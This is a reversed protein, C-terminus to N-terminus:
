GSICNFRIDSRKEQVAKVRNAVREHVPSDPFARSFAELETLAPGEPGCSCVGESVNREIDGLRRHVEEVYSRPHAARYALWGRYRAVIEGKGFAICGSYDTQQDVYSEWGPRPYTAAYEAFFARDRADGHREALEQFFAPDPSSSLAEIRGVLIGKLDVCLRQFADETLYELGADSTLLAKQFDLARELVESVTAKPQSHEVAALATRYAHVAAEARPSLDDRPGEAMSLSSVAALILGLFRM